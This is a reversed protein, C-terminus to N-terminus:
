TQYDVPEYPANFIGASCDVEEFGKVIKIVYTGAWALDEDEEYTNYQTTYYYISYASEAIIAVGAICNNAINAALEVSAGVLVGLTYEVWGVVGPVAMLRHEESRQVGVQACVPTQSFAALVALMLLYLKM